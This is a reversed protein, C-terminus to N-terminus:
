AARRRQSWGSRWSSASRICPREPPQYPAPRTRERGARNFWPITERPAFGMSAPLEAQPGGGCAAGYIGPWLKRGPSRGTDGKLPGNGGREPIRHRVYRPLPCHPAVWQKSPKAPPQFFQAVYVRFAFTMPPRSSIATSVRPPKKAARLTAPAEAPERDAVRITVTRCFARTRSCPWRMVRQRTRRRLACACVTIRVRFILMGFPARSTVRGTVLSGRRSGCGGPEGDGGRRDRDGPPHRDDFCRRCDRGLGGRQRHGDGDSKGSVRSWGGPSPVFRRVHCVNASLTRTIRSYRPLPSRVLRSRDQRSTPPVLVPGRAPACRASGHPRPRGHGCCWRRPSCGGNGYM